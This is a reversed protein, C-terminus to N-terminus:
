IWTQVANGELREVDRLDQKSCDSKTRYPPPAAGTEPMDQAGRRRSASEHDKPPPPPLAKWVNDRKARDQLVLMDDNDWQDRRAKCGQNTRGQLWGAIEEVMLSCLMVLLGFVFTLLLTLVSFSQYVTSPIMLNKCWWAAAESEPAVFYKTEPAIQGTNFEVFNQQFMSMSVSHWFDLELQWQNDPLGLGVTHKETITQLTALIPMNGVSLNLVVRGINSTDLARFMRNFTVNQRPTLSSMFAADLLAQQQGLFPTCVKGNCWKHQEHCALSSIQRDPAYQTHGIVAQTNEHHEFHASFWPDDVEELYNGVYSMMLIAVDSSAQRLQPIPAFDNYTDSM